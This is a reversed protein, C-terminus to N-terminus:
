AVGSSRCGSDAGKTCTHLAAVKLLRQEAHAAGSTPQQGAFDIDQSPSHKGPLTMNFSILTVHKSKRCSTSVSRLPCCAHTKSVNQMEMSAISLQQHWRAKCTYAYMSICCAAPLWVYRSQLCIVTSALIVVVQDTIAPQVTCDPLAQSKQQPVALQAAPLGDDREAVAKFPNPSYQPVQM